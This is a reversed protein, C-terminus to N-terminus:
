KDYLIRYVGDFTSNACIYPYLHANSPKKCLKVTLYSFINMGVNIGSSDRQSIFYYINVGWMRCSLYVNRLKIFSFERPVFKSGTKHRQHYGKTVKNHWSSYNTKKGKRLQALSFRM